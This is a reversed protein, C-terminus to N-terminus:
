AGAVFYFLRIFLFIHVGGSLPTQALGSAFRGRRRAAAYNMVKHKKAYPQKKNKRRKGKFVFARLHPFNNPKQV